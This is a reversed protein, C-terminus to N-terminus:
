FDLFIGSNLYSFRSNSFDLNFKKRDSLDLVVEIFDETLFVRSRSYVM